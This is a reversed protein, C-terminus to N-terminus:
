GLAMLPMERWDKEDESSKQLPSTEMESIFVKLLSM